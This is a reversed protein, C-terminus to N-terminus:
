EALPLSLPAIEDARRSLFDRQPSASMMQAQAIDLRGAADSADVTLVEGNKVVQEGAVFVHVVAREAAEFVLTRVPDRAPRMAPHELDVLVLDAQAGNAIRGLDPRGLADAGGVTAAHFVEETSTTTLDGSVVRALVIALRMEEFVNHPAVDTGIGLGIGARSYAGFDMMAYGYRAFPSPCHAVTAGSDALLSLDKRTHWHTAPHSDVFIAHALVTSPGLLGIKEAWQIPTIGHRRVMELFELMSQSIHTTIVRNTEEALAIADRLLAETCTDIQSPFVVGSLRGCPHSEAENMVQVAQDFSARGAPEDWAFKVEHFNELYWRASAFGPALFVRLGSRACLDVWGDFPTSLDVVSTVGNLLLEAYSLEAGAARGAFSLSFAASREYLGTGYMEPRGHDERLGKYAPETHPHAHLDVLGPTLLYRSADVEVDDPQGEYHPGTYIIKEDRFAIDVHRAYRHRGTGSDWLVAWSAQRFVTTNM